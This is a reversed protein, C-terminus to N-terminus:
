FRYVGPVLTGDASEAAGISELIRAQIMEITPPGQQGPSKKTPDAILVALPKVQEIVETIAQSDAPEFRGIVVLSVDTRPTDGTANAGQGSSPIVKEGRLLAPIETLAAQTNSCVHVVEIKHALHESLHKTHSPDTGCLVAAPRM